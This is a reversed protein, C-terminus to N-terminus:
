SPLEEAPILPQWLPDDQHKHLEVSARFAQIACFAFGASFVCAFYQGTVLNAILGFLSLGALVAAAVRNRRHIGFALGCYAATFFLGILAVSGSQGALTNQLASFASSGASLVSIIVGAKQWNLSSLYTM